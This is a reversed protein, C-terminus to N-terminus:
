FQWITLHDSSVYALLFNTSDMQVNLVSNAKFGKEVNVNGAIQVHQVTVEKITAIVDQFLIEHKAKQIDLSTWFFLNSKNCKPYNYYNNSCRECEDGVVNERCQCKGTTKGCILDMTGDIQCKCEIHYLYKSKFVLNGQYIDSKSECNDGFYGNKCDKCIEGDYNDKCMCGKGDETCNKTGAVHCKGIENGCVVILPM